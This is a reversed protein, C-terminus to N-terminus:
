NTTFIRRVVPPAGEQLDLDEVTGSYLYATGLNHDYSSAVSIYRKTGTECTISLTDLLDTRSEDSYIKDTLTTSSREITHWHPEDEISDYVDINDNSFDWMSINAINTHSYVALGDGATDQAYLDGLTNTVNWIGCIHHIEVTTSVHKVLHEFEGFHGAGKDDTVRFTVQRTQASTITVTDSIVALDTNEDVETYTTFDEIAGFCLSTILLLPIIVSIKKWIM